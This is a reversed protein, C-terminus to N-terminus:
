KNILPANILLYYYIYGVYYTLDAISQLLLWCHFHTAKLCNQIFLLIILTNLCKHMVCDYYYDPNNIYLEHVWVTFLNSLPLTVLSNNIFYALMDTTTYLYKCMPLKYTPKTNSLLINRLFWVTCLYNQPLCLCILLLYCLLFLFYYYLLGNHVIM